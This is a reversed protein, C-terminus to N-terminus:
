VTGSQNSYIENIVWAHFSARASTGMFLLAVAIAFHAARANLKTNM